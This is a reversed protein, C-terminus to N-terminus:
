TLLPVRFTFTLVLGMSTNMMARSSEVTLILSIMLSLGGGKLHLIFGMWFTSWKKMHGLMALITPFSMERAMAGQEQTM